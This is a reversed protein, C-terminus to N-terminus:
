GQTVTKRACGPTRMVSECSALTWGRMAGRKWARFPELSRRKISGIIAMVTYGIQLWAFSLDDGLGRHWNRQRMYYSSQAHTDLWHETARGVASRKHIL